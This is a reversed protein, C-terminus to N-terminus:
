IQPRLLAAHRRSHSTWSAPIWSSALSAPLESGLRGVEGASAAERGGERGATM